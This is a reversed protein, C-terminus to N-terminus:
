STRAKDRPDLDSHRCQCHIDSHRKTSDFSRHRLRVTERVVDKCASNSTIVDSADYRFLRFMRSSFKASERSIWAARETCSRFHRKELMRSTLFTLLLDTVDRSNKSQFNFTDDDVAHGDSGSVFIKLSSRFSNHDQTNLLSQATRLCLVVLLVIKETAVAPEHAGHLREPPVVDHNVDSEEIQDVVERDPREVHVHTVAAVLHELVFCEFGEPSTKSCGSKRTLKNAHTSENEFNRLQQLRNDLELAPRLM